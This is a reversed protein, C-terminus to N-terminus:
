GELQAEAPPTFPLWVTFKTGVNPTSEVNIHGGHQQIIKYSISLGLGTGKGIEKTTFFPDFIKAIVDPPMGKGNDQVEVAVGEGEVRSVLTLTGREDPMAQVANTVLNLFVQNIQSPSCTIDPIEGFRKDVSVSKLLHKGLLLTSNLGENLNFHAVKSRDLRSFNKLNGVIESVQQTGFLGDKVLGDLEELARQQQLTSLQSTAQQFITALGQPDDGSKLLALLRETTGMVEMIHPMQESVRGLSNKVYALPTNIEHAVGAVMQGLSSMKESQILQIESEKLHKMADSLDRTREEVRHELSQNASKLKIGLYALFVLLAAAYYVLYIRYREKEQFSEELENNFALTLNILRPGSTLTSLKAYREMQIPTQTLLHQLDNEIKSTPIGLATLKNLSERLQNEQDGSGHLFYQQAVGSLQSLLLMQETSPRKQASLLTKLEAINSQLSQLRLKNNRDEEKFQKVLDSKAQISNRLETLGSRLTNSSTIKAFRTLDRLAKDGADLRNIEDNQNLEAEQHLRQVELDWHNDIDKVETLLGMVENQERLDIAQSKDYFFWLTGLLIVVILGALLNQQIESKSMDIRSIKM